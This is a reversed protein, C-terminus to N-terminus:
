GRGEERCPVLAPAADAHGVQGSAVRNLGGNHVHAACAAHVKVGLHPVAKLCAALSCPICYSLLVRSNCKHFRHVAAIAVPARYQSPALRDGVANHAQRSGVGQGVGM